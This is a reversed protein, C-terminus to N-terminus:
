QFKDIDKSANTTYFIYYGKFTGLKKIEFWLFKNFIHYYIKVQM